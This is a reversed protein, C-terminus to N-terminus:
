VGESQDFLENKRENEVAGARVQTAVVIPGSCKEPEGALFGLVDL